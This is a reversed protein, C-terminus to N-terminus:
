RCEHGQTKQLGQFFVGKLFVGSSGRDREGSGELSFVEKYAPGIEAPQSASSCMVGEPM